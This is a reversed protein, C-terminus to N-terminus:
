KRPGTLVELRTSTLHMSDLISTKRGIKSHTTVALRSLGNELLVPFKRDRPSRRADACIDASVTESNTDIGTGPFYYNHVDFVLNASAPFHRSWYLEGKFSGQLMVPIKHNVASVMELVGQIYRVIWAAGSDSLSAPTAYLTVDPNDVPENLPEITFSQPTGSAQIFSLVADVAMYSYQLAANNYYWGYNGTKEGIGQGNIGGPLSHLDLIIHMGYKSIAYDTIKALYKIQSGSYLGSGPVAIWAAYITPIRLINVGGAALLDIDTHQIYSAYRQELVEGCNSGL